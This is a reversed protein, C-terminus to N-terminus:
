SAEKRHVTRRPDTTRAARATTLDPYTRFRDRPGALGLVLDMRPTSVLCVVVDRQNAAV